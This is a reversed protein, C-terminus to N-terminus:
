APSPQETRLLTLPLCAPCRHGHSLVDFPRHIGHGTLHDIRTNVDV